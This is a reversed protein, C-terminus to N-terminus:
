RLIVGIIKEGAELDEGAVFRARPDRLRMLMGPADSMALTEGIRVPGHRASVWARTRGRLLILVEGSGPDISEIVGISSNEDTRAFTPDGVAGSRTAPRVSGGELVVVRGVSLGLAGSGLAFARTERPPARPDDLALRGPDADPSPPADPAPAGETGPPQVAMPSASEPSPSGRLMMAIVGAILVIGAACLASRAVLIAPGANRVEFPMAPTTDHPALVDGVAITGYRMQISGLRTPDFEEFDLGGDSLAALEEGPYMSPAEGSSEVRRRIASPDQMTAGHNTFGSSDPNMFRLLFIKEIGYV